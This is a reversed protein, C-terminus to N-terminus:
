LQYIDSAIVPKRLAFYECLKLPSTWLASPHNRSPPLLFIDTDDIYNRLYNM